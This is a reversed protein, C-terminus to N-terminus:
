GRARPGPPPGGGPGLRLSGGGAGATFNGALAGPRWAVGPSASSRCGRAANEAAGALHVAREHEGLASALGSFGEMHHALLTRDGFDLAVELGFRFRTSAS